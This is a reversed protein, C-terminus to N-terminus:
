WQGQKRSLSDTQGNDALNNKNGDAFKMPSMQTALICKPSVAIAIHTHIHTHPTRKETTFGSIMKLMEESEWEGRKEKGEETKSITEKKRYM